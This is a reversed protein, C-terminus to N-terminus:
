FWDYYWSRWQFFIARYEKHNLASIALTDLNGKDDVKDKIFRACVEDKEYDKVSKEDVPAFGGKPSAFFCKSVMILLFM